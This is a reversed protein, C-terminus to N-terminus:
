DGRHAPSVVSRNVLRAVRPAIHLDCARGSRVSGVDGEQEYGASREELFAALLEGQGLSVAYEDAALERSRWYVGWAGALLWFVAQGSAVWVLGRFPLTRLPLTRPTSMPAVVLMRLAGTLRADVSRLHALQHALVAPAYPSELLGRDVRLSVGCAAAGCGQTDVVFWHARARVAPDVMRLRGIVANFAQAEHEGPARGASWLEWCRGVLPGLVGPFVLVFVSVVLPGFAVVVALLHTPIPWGMVWGMGGFVVTVILWRAAAAFWEGALTVAYL